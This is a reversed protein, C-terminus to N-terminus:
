NPLNFKFNSIDIDHWGKAVNNKLCRHYADETPKLQHNEVQKQMMFPHPPAKQGNSVGWIGLSLHVPKRRKLNPISLDEHEPNCNHITQYYPYHPKHMLYGDRNQTNSQQQPQLFNGLHIPKQFKQAPMFKEAPFSAQFDFHLSEMLPNTNVIPPEEQPRKQEVFPEIRIKVKRIKLEEKRVLVKNVTEEEVFTVFGFGKSIGTEENKLTYGTEVKGFKLFLNMIDENTTRRPLNSIYVTRNNKKSKEEKLEEGELYKRCTVIRKEILHDKIKIVRQAIKSDKFKIICFGRNFNEKTKCKKLDISEIEGYIGFFKLLTKEKFSPKLGGVFVCGKSGIM